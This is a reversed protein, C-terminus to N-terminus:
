LQQLVKLLFTFTRDVSSISIHENPTHIDHMEPGFSIADLEPLLELFFGCELGAHIAEIVPKKNYTKEYEELCLERLSSESVYTWGPYFDDVIVNIDLVEALCLMEDVFSMMVSDVSSRPANIFNISNDADEIVGLNNSTIVLDIITSRSLVGSKTLQITQIIKHKVEDTLVKKPCDISKIELAVNPDTEIMETKFTDRISTIAAELAMSDNVVVCAAAERPIANDKSGGTISILEITDKLSYLVRGLLKNANGKEKDIDVGSHGGELDKISIEFAEKNKTDVFVKNIEFTIRGGGACGVTFVGEGESDLNILTKGTLNEKKMNMAGTMGTEEDVTVVVELPPHEYDGDLLALCMAVAIGNDAGLTTETAYIYDEIVRLKIPDKLFDHVTEQNKECVMDMHGQLIVAPKSDNGASAPKRIIINLVEDQIVELSRDKAFKKLYDSIARENGSGRPIKSIEEFYYFVNQPNLGKLIRM